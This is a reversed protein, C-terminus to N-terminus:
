KICCLDIGNPTPYTIEQEQGALVFCCMECLM